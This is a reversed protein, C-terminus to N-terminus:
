TDSIGHYKHPTSVHSTNTNRFACRSARPRSSWGSIGREGEKEGEREREKERARASERERQLSLRTTNLVLSSVIFALRMLIRAVTHAAVRMKGDDGWVNRMKGRIEWRGGGDEMEGDDGWM